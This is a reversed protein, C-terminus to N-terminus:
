KAGDRLGFFRPGNWRVGTIVRAVHSLSKYTQEGYAFGNETKVVDYRRGQWERSLKTGVTVPRKPRTTPGNRRLAQRVGADLGGLRETQM